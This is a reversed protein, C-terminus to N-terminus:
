PSMASIAFDILADFNSSKKLTNEQRFSDRSGEYDANAIITFNKGGYGMNMKVYFVGEISSGSVKGKLYASKVSVNVGCLGEDCLGDEFYNKIDLRNYAVNFRGGGLNKWKGRMTSDHFKGGRSFTYEEYFSSTQSDYGVVSVNITGIVSYNGVIGAELKSGTFALILVMISALAVISKLKKRM